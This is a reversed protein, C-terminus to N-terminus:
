LFVPSLKLKLATSFCQLEICFRVADEYNWRKRVEAENQQYTEERGALILEQMKQM